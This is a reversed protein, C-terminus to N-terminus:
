MMDFGKYGDNALERITKLYLPLGGAYILAERRNGPINAGTSNLDTFYYRYADLCLGVRPTVLM